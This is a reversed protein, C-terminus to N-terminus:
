VVSKRDGHEFGPSNEVMGARGKFRQELVEGRGEPVTLVNMVVYSM